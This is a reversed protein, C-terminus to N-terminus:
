GILDWVADGQPEPTKLRIIYPPREAIWFTMTTPAGVDVVWADIEGKAGAGIKERRVVKFPVTDYTDDFEGIAPLKGAYGIRLPQAALLLGYMGGNFDYVPVPTDFQRVSEPAGPSRIDRTEVHTGEFRRKIVRGAPTHQESYVPALTAPDFRNITVSSMGNAYTMGQVRELLRRGDQERWRVVDSWIGRDRVQGGPLHLSFMWANAYPSLRTGSVTGDGVEINAQSEIAAPPPSASTAAAALFVLMLRDIMIM